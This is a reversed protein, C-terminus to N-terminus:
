SSPVMIAIDTDDEIAISYTWQRGWIREVREVEAKEDAKTQRRQHRARNRALSAEVFDDHAPGGSGLLPLGGSAARM